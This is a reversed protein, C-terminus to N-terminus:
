KSDFVKKIRILHCITKFIHNSPLFSMGEAKIDIFHCAVERRVLLKSQCRLKPSCCNRNSGINGFTILFKALGIFKTEEINSLAAKFFTTIIMDKRSVEVIQSFSLKFRQMFFNLFCTLKEIRIAFGNRIIISNMLIFHLFETLYFSHLRLM